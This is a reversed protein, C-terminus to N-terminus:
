EAARAIAPGMILRRLDVLLAGDFKARAEWDEPEAVILMLHSGLHLEPRWPGLAWFASGFVSVM